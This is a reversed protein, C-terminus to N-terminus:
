QFQFRMSCALTTGPAIAYQGGSVCAAIASVVGLPMSTCATQQGFMNSAGGGTGDIAWVSGKGPIGDDIKADMYYADGASINNTENLAVGYINVTSPAALVFYNVGGCSAPIVYNGRKMKAPPILLDLAAGSTTASPVGGFTAITGATTGTQAYTGDILSADSLQRFFATEEGAIYVNTAYGGEILGNGDGLGTQGGNITFTFFGFKSADNVQLDGPLGGYKNRFTNTATNYKEIQSLTARLEASKILDRGTLIGGIILGVIVLVISMEILTFGTRM